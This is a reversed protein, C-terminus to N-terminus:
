SKHSVKFKFPALYVVCGVAGFVLLEVIVHPYNLEPFYLIVLSMLLASFGSKLLVPLSIIKFVSVKLDKQLFLLLLAANFSASILNALALGYVSYDFILTFSLSLSINLVMTAIATAVPTKTDSLSYFARSWLPILSQPLASWILIAFTHETMLAATEDFAGGRLILEILPERLLYLGVVAPFSWFWITSFSRKLTQNFETKDKSLAQEALTSFIAVSFSVAVVGNPFSQLNLAYSYVSLAGLSLTSALAFDVFLIIQSASMGLVRPAALTFFEKIPKTWRPRSPKFRFSTKLAGPVQVLFHLFAGAAVGWALAYVGYQKGFFIAAMIIMGNYVIPALAMGLFKKHVNEVGQLIGSLGLFIPSLLLVRTLHIALRQTEVEFGPALLPIVWPALVFLVAGFVLLLAFVGSLTQNVFVNAEQPKEKKLRTYLPIFAASLAGVILLTYLLDPIRFALYYADLAYIGGADGIGFIKAFVYDRLVGLGRSAVSSIALLLAGFGAASWLKKKM